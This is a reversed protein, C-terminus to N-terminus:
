KKRAELKEIKTSLVKLEAQQEQLQQAQAEITAQQAEITTKLKVLENTNNQVKEALAIIKKDLEKIANVASFLIEDWRIKLYGDDGTIVANPFIKQLDQAIVGVQPTKDRDAKFTYNFTNIQNIEALGGTFADGVNKLRRDSSSWKTFGDGNWNSTPHEYDIQVRHNDHYDGKKYIEHKTEYPGVKVYLASGEKNMAMGVNSDTGKWDGSNLVAFHRGDEQTYPRFYLNDGNSGRRGILAPGDVVLNGPIYVTDLSTGLVITNNYETTANKGIAISNQHKASANQGIAISEYGSAESKTGIAISSEYADSAKASVGIAVSGLGVAESSSGVAVANFGTAKASQGVAVSGGRTKTGNGINVSTSTSETGFGINILGMPNDPMSTQGFIISQVPITEGAERIGVYGNPKSNMFLIQNRGKVYEVANSPDKNLVDFIKDSRERSVRKTIMPATAALVVTIILMVIMMEALSFGRKKM